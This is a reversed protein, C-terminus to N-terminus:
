PAHRLDTLTVDDDAREAMALRQEAVGPVNGLAHLRAVDHLHQVDAAHDADAVRHIGVLALREVTAHEADRQHERIEALADAYRRADALALEIVIRLEIRPVHRHDRERARTHFRALSRRCARDDAAHTM